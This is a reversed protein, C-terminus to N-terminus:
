TENTLRPGAAATFGPLAPPSGVPPPQWCTPQLATTVQQMGQVPDPGAPVRQRAAPPAFGARGDEEGPVSVPSVGALRRSCPAPTIPDCDQRPRSEAPPPLVAGGLWPGPMRSARGCTGGGPRAGHSEGWM